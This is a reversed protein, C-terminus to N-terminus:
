LLLSAAIGVYWPLSRQNDKVTEKKIHPSIIKRYLEELQADSPIEQDSIDQKQSAYWGEILNKEFPTAEGRLYRQLIGIFDKQDM